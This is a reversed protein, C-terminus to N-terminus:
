TAEKVERRYDHFTNGLSGNIPNFLLSGIPINNKGRYSLRIIIRNIPDLFLLCLPINNKGKCSLVYLVQELAYFSM